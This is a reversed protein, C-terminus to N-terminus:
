MQQGRRLSISNYIAPILGILLFLCFVIVFLGAFKLNVEIFQSFVAESVDEYGAEKLRQLVEPWERGIAEKISSTRLIMSLGTILSVFASLSLALIYGFLHHLKGKDSWSYYGFGGLGGVFVAIIFLSYTVAWIPLSRTYYTHYNFYLGVVLIALSFVMFLLNTLPFLVRMVREVGQIRAIVVIKIFMTLEITLAFAGLAVMEQAAHQKFDSM